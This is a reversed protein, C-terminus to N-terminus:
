SAKRPRSASLSKPVDVGGHACASYATDALARWQSNNIVKRLQRVQDVSLTPEVATAAVLQIDFEVGEDEANPKAHEKVFVPWEDSPLGRFRVHRMAGRMQQELDAIRATLEVARGANTTDGIAGDPDPLPVGDADVIKSLDRTAQEWDAQLDGRLCIPAIREPRRAETLLEDISLMRRSESTVAADALSPIGTAANTPRDSSSAPDGLTQDTM